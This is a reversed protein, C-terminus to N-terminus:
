PHGSRVWADSKLREDPWLEASPDTSYAFGCAQQRLQQRPRPLQATPRHNAGRLQRESRICRRERRQAALVDLHHATVHRWRLYGIAQVTNDDDSVPVAIAGCSSRCSSGPRDVDAGSLGVLIRSRARERRDDAHWLYGDRRDADPANVCMYPMVTAM